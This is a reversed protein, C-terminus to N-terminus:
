RYCNSGPKIKISSSSPWNESTVPSCVDESGAICVQTNKQGATTSFSQQYGPQLSSVALRNDAYFDISYCNQNVVTITIPQGHNANSNPSPQKCADPNAACGILGLVLATGMVQTEVDARDSDSQTLLKSPAVWDVAGTSLYQIKVRGNQPDVYKVVVRDNEGIPQYLYYVDGPQIGQVDVGIATHTVLSGFLTLTIALKKM